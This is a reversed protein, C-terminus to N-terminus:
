TNSTESDLIHEDGDALGMAQMEPNKFISKALDERRNDLVEKTRASMISNFQSQIDATRGAAMADLMSKIDASM